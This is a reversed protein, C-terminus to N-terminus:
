LNSVWYADTSESRNRAEYWCATREGVTTSSYLPLRTPSMWSPSSGHEDGSLTVGAAAVSCCHRFVTGAASCAAKVARYPLPLVVLLMGLDISPWSDCSVPPLESSSFSVAVDYVTPKLM